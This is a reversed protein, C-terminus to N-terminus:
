REEIPGLCVPCSLSKSALWRLSEPAEKSVERANMMPEVNISFEVMCKDCYFTKEREM